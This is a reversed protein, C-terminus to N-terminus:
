GKTHLRGHSFLSTPILLLVLLFLWLITTPSCTLTVSVIKFCWVHLWSMVSSHMFSVVYYCAAHNVLHKHLVPDKEKLLKMMQGMAGGPRTVPTLWSQRCYWAVSQCYLRGIGSHSYDLKKTFKDGVETMLNTFCFFSDAEAHEPM